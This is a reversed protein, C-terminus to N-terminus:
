LRGYVQKSLGRCRGGTKRKRNNGRSNEESQTLITKKVCGRVKKAIKREREEEGDVRGKGREKEEKGGKCSTARGWREGGRTGSDEKAVIDGGAATDTGGQDQSERVLKSKDGAKEMKGRGEGHGKERGPPDNKAAVVGGGRRVPKKRVDNKRKRKPAGACGGGGRVGEFVGGGGGEYGLVLV